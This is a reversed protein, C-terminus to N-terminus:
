SVVEPVRSSQPQKQLVRAPKKKIKSNVFFDEASIQGFNPYNSWVEVKTGKTKRQKIVGYNAVHDTANFLCLILSINLLNVVKAMTKSLANTSRNLRASGLGTTWSMDFRNRNEWHGHCEAKWRKMDFNKLFM